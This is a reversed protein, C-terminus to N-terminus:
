MGSYNLQLVESLPGEERGNRGAVWIYYTIAEDPLPLGIVFSLTANETTDSFQQQPLSVNTGYFIVYQDPTLHSGNGPIDWSIPQYLQGGDVWSNRGREVNVM